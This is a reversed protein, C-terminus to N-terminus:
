NKVPGTLAAIRNSKQVNIIEVEEVMDDVRWKILDGTKQGYVCSGLASFISIKNEKIDAEGPLVLKLNFKRGFSTKISFIRGLLVINDPLQDKTCTLCSGLKQKLLLKTRIDNDDQPTAACVMKLLYDREIKEIM